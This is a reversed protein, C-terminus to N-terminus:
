MLSDAKFAMYMIKKALLKQWQGIVVAKSDSKAGV